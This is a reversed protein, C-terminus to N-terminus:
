CKCESRAVYTKNGNSNIYYCGGEPGKYLTKGNHTGCGSTVPPQVTKVTSITISKSLSSFGGKGSAGLIITYTKNEPYKVAPPSQLTSTEGNGFNWSYVTAGVSTNTITVRGDTGELTTFSLQPVSYTNVDVKQMYAHGGVSNSATLVVSYTGNKDYAHVPNKEYSYISNDGFNWEYKVAGKSMDTFQVQGQGVNKWSFSATPLPLTATTEKPACANISIVFLIALGQTISRNM